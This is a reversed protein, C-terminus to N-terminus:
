DSTYKDNLYIDIINTALIFYIAVFIVFLIPTFVSHLHIHTIYSRKAKLVNPSVSM